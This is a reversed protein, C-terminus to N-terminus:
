QGAPNRREGSEVDYMEIPTVPDAITGPESRIRAEDLALDDQGPRATSSMSNTPLITM